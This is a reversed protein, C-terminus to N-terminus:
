KAYRKSVLGIIEELDAASLNAASVQRMLRVAGPQRKIYREAVEGFRGALAMADEFDVGVAETLKRLVDEAPTRRDNEIDSLYSPTIELQAAVSRLSVGKAIRADRLWEGLTIQDSIPM